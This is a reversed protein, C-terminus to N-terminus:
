APYCTFGSIQLASPNLCCKYVFDVTGVASAGRATRSLICHQTLVSPAFETRLPRWQERNPKAPLLVLGCRIRDGSKHYKQM